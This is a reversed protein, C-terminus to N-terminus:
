PTENIQNMCYNRGHPTIAYIPASNREIGFMSYDRGVVALYQRAGLLDVYHHAKSYELNFRDAVNRVVTGQPNNFFYQLVQGLMRTTEDQIKQHTEAIVPVPNTVQALSAKLRENEAKLEAIEQESM